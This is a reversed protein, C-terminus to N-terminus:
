VLFIIVCSFVSFHINLYSYNQIFEKSVKVCKLLTSINNKVWHAHLPTHKKTFVQLYFLFGIHMENCPFIKKSRTSKESRMLLLEKFHQTGFKQWCRDCYTHKGM